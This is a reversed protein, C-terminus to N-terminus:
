NILSINFNVLRDSRWGGTIFVLKHIGPRQATFVVDNEAVFVTGGDPALLIISMLYVRDQIDFRYRQGQILDISYIDVFDNCLMTAYETNLIIIPAATLSDNEEMPEEEFNCKGMDNQNNVALIDSQNDSYDSEEMEHEDAFVDVGLDPNVWLRIYVQGTL